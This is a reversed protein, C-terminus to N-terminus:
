KAWPGPQPIARVPKSDLRLSATSALRWVAAILRHLSIKVTAQLLEQTLFHRFKPSLFFKIRALFGKTTLFDFIQHHLNFIPVTVFVASPESRDKFGRYKELRGEVWHRDFHYAMKRLCSKVINVTQSRSSEESLMLWGDDDLQEALLKLDLLRRPQLSIFCDTCYHVATVILQHALCPLMINRHGYAGSQGFERLRDFTLIESFGKYHSFHGHIDLNIGASRWAAHNVTFDTAACLPSNNTGIHFGQSHFSERLKAAIDPAVIVDIDSIPRLAPTSYVTQSSAAGKMLVADGFSEVRLLSSLEAIAMSATRYQFASHHYAAELQALFEAPLKAKANNKEIKHFALPGLGACCLERVNAKSTQTGIFADLSGALLKKVAHALSTESRKVFKLSRLM